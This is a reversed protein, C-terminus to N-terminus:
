QVGGFALDIGKLISDVTVWNWKYSKADMLLNGLAHERVANHHVTMLFNEVAVKRAGPRAALPRVEDLTLKRPM